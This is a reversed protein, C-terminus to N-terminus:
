GRDTQWQNGLRWGQRKGLSYDVCSTLWFVAAGPVWVWSMWFWVWEKWTEKAKGISTFPVVEVGGGLASILVGHKIRLIGWMYVVLSPNTDQDQWKVLKHSQSHEKVERIRYKRLQLIPIINFDIKKYPQQTLILHFLVSWSSLMTDAESISTAPIRTPKRNTNRKKRCQQYNKKNQKNQSRWSKIMACSMKLQPMHSRTGQGPILGLGGANPALLRLWQVVLSSGRKTTKILLVRWIFDKEGQTQWKLFLHLCGLRSSVLGGGCLTHSPLGLGGSSWIMYVSFEFIGRGVVKKHTGWAQFDWLQNYHDSCHALSSYITNLKLLLM